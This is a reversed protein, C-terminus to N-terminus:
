DALEKAHEALTTLPSPTRFDIEFEAVGPETGQGLEASARAPNPTAGHRCSEDGTHERNLDLAEFVTGMSIRVTGLLYYRGRGPERIERVPIMGGVLKRLAFAAAPAAGRLVNSLNRLELEIWEMTPEETLRAPVSEIARLQQVLTERERRRE